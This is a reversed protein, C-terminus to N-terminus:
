QWGSPYEPLEIPGFFANVNVNVARGVVATLDLAKVGSAESQKGQPFGFARALATSELAIASLLKATPVQPVAAPVSM